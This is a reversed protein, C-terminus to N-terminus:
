VPLYEAVSAKVTQVLQTAPLYEVVVPAFEELMHMTQPAPLNESATPAVTSDVQASQWAPLYLTKAAAAVRVHPPVFQPEPQVGVDPADDPVM